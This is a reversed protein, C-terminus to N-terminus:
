PSGIPEPIRLRSLDGSRQGSHWLCRFWLQRATWGQFVGTWRYELFIHCNEAHGDRGVALVLTVDYRVRGLGVDDWSAASYRVSRAGPAPIGQEVTSTSTWTATSANLVLPPAVLPSLAIAAVLILPVLALM